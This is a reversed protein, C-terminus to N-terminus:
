RTLVLVRAEDMERTQLLYFRCRDASMGVPRAALTYGVTAGAPIGSDIVSTDLPEAKGFRGTSTARDAHFVGDHAPTARAKTWYYITREDSTLLVSSEGFTTDLESVPEAAPTALSSRYIHTTTSPSDNRTFYIMGSPTVFPEHLMISRTDPALPLLTPGSYASGPAPRTLRYIRSSKYAGPEIGYGGATVYLSSGDDPAWVEYAYPDPTSTVNTEKGFAGSASARTAVTTWVTGAYQRVVYLTKEDASVRASFISKQTGATALVAYHAFPKTVDCAGSAPGDGADDGPVSADAKPAAADHGGAGAEASDQPGGQTPDAASVSSADLGSGCAALALM